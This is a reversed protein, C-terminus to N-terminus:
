PEQKIERVEKVEIVEQKPEEVKEPVNKNFFHKRGFKKPSEIPKEEEEKKENVDNNNVNSNFGRRYRNFRNNTTTVEKEPEKKEIKPEEIEKEKKGYGYRGGFRTPKEM